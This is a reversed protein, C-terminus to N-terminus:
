MYSVKMQKKYVNM